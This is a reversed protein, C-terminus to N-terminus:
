RSDRSPPEQAHRELQQRGARMQPYQKKIADYFLAYRESISRAATKM